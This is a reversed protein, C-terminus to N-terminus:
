EIRGAALDVDGDVVGAVICGSADGLHLRLIELSAPTDTAEAAEEETALRHAAHHRAAAAEEEGAGARRKAAAGAVTGEVRRLGPQAGECLRHRLLIRLVADVDGM